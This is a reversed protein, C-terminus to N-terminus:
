FYKEIIEMNDSLIVGWIFDPLLTLNKSSIKFCKKDNMDESFIKETIITYDKEPKKKQIITIIPYVSPDDFVRVKSLDLVKVLKYKKSILERLAKGYPSSLYKNPTIFSVFGNNKCVNLSQEFFLVFIDYAGKASYYKSKWYKKIEEGVTKTLQIANIYPPNGIVVDFGGEEMIKEFRENWIFAKNGAVSKDDILSNGYQINEQLLPLRHRREAIKLLLNLQAIEVAQKDLDVGFLNNQLINVRTTFPAGTKLDLNTQAYNENDESYHANLIDFAKILFSGSGCAPDLVRIKEANNKKTKIMEGLTNRVIYDVIYTPTYYIGQEKRLTQSVTIKAKKETKKLIHSLYQEYINGLVDADIIEFDYRRLKDKTRYLGTIMDKLTDSTITVQDILAEKFLESDYTEEFKRFIEILKSYLSKKRDGDWERFTSLLINPELEADETKRIFVLRNMLRHVAEDLEEETLKMEKNFKLINSSISSRWQAFDDLLQQDIPALKAKKGWKEAVKDIIDEQFSEKSLLWLEDFRELFEHCKISKLQNHLLNQTKWEANFIMIDEFDTLVAWTCGKTWAYDIAQEIYSQTTLDAKMPKAELFFKPIGNLRFGFDVRRKSVQEEATVENSDEINWGLARFLPLIFSIKTMEENYKSIKNEAVVRQYKDLLEKIQQKATEKMIGTTMLNRKDNM